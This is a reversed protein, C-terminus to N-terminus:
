AETNFAISPNINIGPNRPTATKKNRVENVSGCNSITHLEKECLAKIKGDNQSPQNNANKNVHKHTEKNITQKHVNTVLPYQTQM